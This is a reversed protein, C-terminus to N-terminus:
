GVAGHKVIKWGFIGGGSQPIFEYLQCNRVSRISIGYLDGFARFVRGHSAILVPTDHATLIETMANQVRASFDHWTEGNPPDYGQAILPKIESLPQGVWDGLDQEAIDPHEHLPLKLNENLIVATDRARSLHSHYIAAPPISLKDVIDIVAAAQARGKDTLPSDHHGTYVDAANGETEGHRIMYFHKQPIM